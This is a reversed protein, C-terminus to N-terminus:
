EIEVKRPKAAGAKPVVISLIGDRLSAKVGDQDVRGPFAFSRHFEGAARESVWYRPRHAEEPRKAVEGAASPQKAVASASEEAASEDEVRPQKHKDDQSPADEAPPDGSQYRHESRGSVTLTNGDTWEVSVDKQAIGPLEGHLEYSSDLERVDFRPAFSRSFSAFAGNSNNPSISSSSSPHARTAAREYDDLLRFLPSFDNSFRPFLSM